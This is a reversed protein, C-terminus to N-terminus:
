IHYQTLLTQHAFREARLTEYRWRPWAYKKLDTNNNHTPPPPAEILRKHRKNTQFELEATHKDSWLDANQTDLINSAGATASRSVAERM